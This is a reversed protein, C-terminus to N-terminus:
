DTKVIMMHMAQTHICITTNLDLPTFNQRTVDPIIYPTVHPTRTSIFFSIVSDALLCRSTNILGLLDM